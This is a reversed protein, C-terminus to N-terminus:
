KKEDFLGLDRRADERSEAEYIELDAESEGIDKMMEPVTWLKYAKGPAPVSLVIGDRAMERLRASASCQSVGTIDLEHVALPHESRRLRRYILEKAPVKM